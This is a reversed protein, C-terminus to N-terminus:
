QSEVGKCRVIGAVNSYYHLVTSILLDINNSQISDEDPSEDKLCEKMYYAFYARLRLRSKLM